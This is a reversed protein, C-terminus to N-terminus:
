PSTPAEASRVVPRKATAAIALTCGLIVGDRAVTGWTAVEAGGFCGCTLNIGRLLAQSLAGIFVALLISLLLAASRPWRNTVLMAGALLEIGPLGAAFFPVLSPPLLRYNAIEEAFADFAPLKTWAAYIFLAGVAIRLLALAIRRNM